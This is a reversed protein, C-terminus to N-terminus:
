SAHAMSVVLQYARTKFSAGDGLLVSAPMPGDSSSHFDSYETVANLAGWLTGRVGVIETGKGSDRLENVKARAALISRLRTEFAKHQSRAASAAPRKPEPLLTHTFKEFATDNCSRNLLLNFSQEVKDLEGLAQKYFEDAAIAHAAISGSHSRRFQNGFKSEKLAANLTNKCVVRVTTLRIQYASSGDHSNMMVAYPVVEDKGGVSITRDIKALLWIVEGRRLYGGTEYVAKGKGFVDDFVQAAELNQIANFGQHVVGIVRGDDGPPKDLRVVAKRSFVPSPKNGETVLDDYDVKWDLGGAVLAQQMIAPGQLREGKGHWPMQGTSFMKGIDDPM